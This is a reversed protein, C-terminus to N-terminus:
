PLHGTRDAPPLSLAPPQSAVGVGVALGAGAVAAIGIVLPWHRFGEEDPAEEAEESPTGDAQRRAEEAAQAVAAVMPAPLLRPSAQSGELLVPGGHADKAEAFAEVDQTPAFPMSLSAAAKASKETYSPAGKLRAHVSVAAALPADETLKVGVAGYKDRTLELAYHKATLATRAAEFPNLIKPGMSADVTAAPDLLLLREFAVRADRGQGQFAASLGLGKWGRIREDLTGPQDLAKAFLKAAKDFELEQFAKEAAVLPSDGPASWVLLMLPVLPSM